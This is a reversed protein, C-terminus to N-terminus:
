VAPAAFQGVGEGFVTGDHGGIDEVARFRHAHAHEDHAREDLHTFEKAARLIKGAL